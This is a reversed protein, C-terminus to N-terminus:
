KAVSKKRIDLKLEQEAVEIFKEAVEARLEAAQRLLREQSLLRKLASVDEPLGAEWQKQTEKNSDKMDAGLPLDIPEVRWDIGRSLLWRSLTMGGLGYRRSISYISESGSLFETLVSDKYSESYRKFRKTKSQM